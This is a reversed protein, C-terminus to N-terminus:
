RYRKVQAPKMTAPTGRTVRSVLSSPTALLARGAQGLLQLSARVANMSLHRGWHHSLRRGPRSRHQRRREHSQLLEYSITRCYPCSPFRRGRILTYGDRVGIHTPQHTVRYFGSEPVVQGGQFQAVDKGQSYAGARLHERWLELCIEYLFVALSLCNILIISKPKIGTISPRRTRQVSHPARSASEDDTTSSLRTLWGPENFNLKISDLAHVQTIHFRWCQQYRFAAASGGQRRLRRLWLASDKLRM